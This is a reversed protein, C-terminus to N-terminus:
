FQKFYRQVDATKERQVWYSSVSSDFKRQMPDYRCLRMLIAIPTFLLYYILTLLVHSIVWGVPMVAYMWGRYISIRRAPMAYYVAILVGAAIWLAYTVIPAIPYVLFWGVLGMFLAFLPGFWQLERRTFDKKVEFISM